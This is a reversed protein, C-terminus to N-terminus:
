PAESSRATDRLLANQGHKLRLFDSVVLQTFFRQVGEDVVHSIARYLEGGYVKVDGVAATIRETRGWLTWTYEGKLVPCFRTDVHELVLGPLQDATTLYVSLLNGSTSNTVWPSSVGLYPLYGPASRAPSQM